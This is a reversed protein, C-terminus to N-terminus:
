KKNKGVNELWGEQIIKLKAPSLEEVRKKSLEELSPLNSNVDVSFKNAEEQSLEIMDLVTWDGWFEPSQKLEQAESSILYNILVLAGSKNPANAPIALYHNNFLTGKNLLFSKADIPYDKTAIKSNVKNITYGMSIDLEGTQFMSDLKGEGEPYTAGQRWLYPKLENLYSWVVMLEKKLEDNTLSNIKENGIIDIAINRVFANGTHDTVVPYTFKGPNNKAYELLTSSDLFPLGDKEGRYIFNFQSEGWPVEMGLIPEGFDKEMTSKKLLKVNPLNKSFDGWLLGGDKLTKFNEGNIWIVDITGRKKGASKEVILKNVFDQANMPIRNLKLDYKDKLRAVMQKDMFKNIEESGGYMYISVETGKANESILKYNYELDIDADAKNEKGCAILALALVSLMLKKKINGM